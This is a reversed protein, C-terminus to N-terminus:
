LQAHQRAVDGLRELAAAERDLEGLPEALGLDEHVREVVDARGLHVTTQGTASGLELAGERQRERFAVLLVGRAPVRVEAAARHPLVVVRVGIPVQRGPDRVALLVVEIRPAHVHATPKGAHPEALPPPVLGGVAGARHQPLRVNGYLAPDHRQHVRATARWAPRDAGM